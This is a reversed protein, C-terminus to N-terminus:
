GVVERVVMFAEAWLAGSQAGRWALLSRVPGSGRPHTPGVAESAYADLARMKKDVEEASLHVFRQPTFPPGTAGFAWETSSPTEGAYIAQVGKGAESSPRTATVVAQAVLRHDVNLDGAHHTYIIDPHWRELLDEVHRVLVLQSVMNLCNDFFAHFPSPPDGGAAGLVQMAALFELRRTREAEQVDVHEDRVRSSVGDTVYSCLVEDGGAVHRAITGGAMLCEDDPHAVAVLVRM